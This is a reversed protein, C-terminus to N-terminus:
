RRRVTLLGVMVLSLYSLVGPEPVVAAADLEIKGDLVDIRIYRASQIGAATGDSQRAWALDFGTGGASGAYLARIGDMTKGAFDSEHLAPNVPFLFSGSGDTPFLGDATASLGSPVQLEYYNLNNESVWVKSVGAPDFTFLSGDTVWNAEPDSFNDVKFGNNGFLIFDVGFPNAADNQIPTGVQLTISGGKGVSVLQDPTYAPGFPNVPSTFGGSSSSQSPAGLASNPDRYKEPSTTGPTYAVISEAFPSRFLM